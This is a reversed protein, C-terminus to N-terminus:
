LNQVNDNIIYMNYIKGAMVIMVINFMTFAIILLHLINRSDQDTLIIMTNHDHHHITMMNRWFLMVMIVPLCKTLHVGRIKYEYVNNVHHMYWTYQAHQTYLTHSVPRKVLFQSQIKNHFFEVFQFNEEVHDHHHINYMYWDFLLYLKKVHKVHKISCMVHIYM